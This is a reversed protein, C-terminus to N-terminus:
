EAREESPVFVRFEEGEQAGLAAVERIRFDAGDPLFESVNEVISRIGEETLASEPVVRAEVHTPSEQVIQFRSLHVAARTAGCSPCPIGTIQRFMCPPLIDVFRPYLQSLTYGMVGILGICLGIINSTETRDTNRIIATM